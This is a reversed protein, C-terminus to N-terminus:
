TTSYFIFESGREDRMERTERGQAVAVTTRVQAAVRAVQAMTGRRRWLYSGGREMEPFGGGGGDLAAVGSHRRRQKRRSGGGRSPVEAEQAAAVLQEDGDDDDGGDTGM